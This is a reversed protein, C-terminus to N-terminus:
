WSMLSKLFLTLEGSIELDDGIDPHGECGKTWQKSFFFSSLRGDACGKIVGGIYRKLAATLAADGMPSTLLVIRASPYLARLHRVFTVYAGCFVTSDQIGDNQGLCVTVVDPQYRRFDWDGQNGRNDMRDFVEPMTITMKCCSHILGIGSVATLHWQSKLARATLPGYSMWANHHDYWEGKGCPIDSVDNGYGCTISNGIFEIRRDPLAPPDLLTEAEVGALEMWGIGETAKCVTVVHDGSGPVTLTDSHGKLKVRYAVVDGVLVVIYNHTNGYAVEDHVVIRCGAGGFRFRLVVGPNWFRPLKPNKLDVRGMYEIRPDDAGFWRPAAQVGIVVFVSFFLILLYKM